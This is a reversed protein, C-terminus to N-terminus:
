AYDMRMTLRLAVFLPESGGTHKGWKRVLEGWNLETGNPATGPHEEGWAGRLLASTLVSHYHSGKPSAHAM